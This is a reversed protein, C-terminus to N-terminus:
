PRYRRGMCVADISHVGYLAVTIYFVCLFVTILGIRMGTWFAPNKIILYLLYYIITIFIFIGSYVRLEVTIYVLIVNAKGKM